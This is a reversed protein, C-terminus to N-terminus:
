CTIVLWMKVPRPTSVSANSVEQESNGAMNVVVSGHYYFLLLSLSRLLGFATM